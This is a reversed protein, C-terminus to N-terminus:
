CMFESGVGGMVIYLRFGLAYVRLWLGCVMLMLCYPGPM